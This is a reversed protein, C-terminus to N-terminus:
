GLVVAVYDENVAEAESLKLRCLLAVTVVDKLVTGDAM